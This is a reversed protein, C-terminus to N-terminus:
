TQMRLSREAWLKCGCAKSRSRGRIPGSLHFQQNRKGAGDPKCDFLQLALAPTGGRPAGTSNTM